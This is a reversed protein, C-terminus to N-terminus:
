KEISTLLQNLTRPCNVFNEKQNKPLTKFFYELRTAQSRNGVEIQTVLQLPGRGRLYKACRQGGRKHESFRRLVDTTIGTYLTNDSCRIIYLYWMVLVSSM